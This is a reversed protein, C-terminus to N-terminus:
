KQRRRNEGDGLENNIEIRSMISREPNCILGQLPKPSDRGPSNQGKALETRTYNGRHMCHSLRHQIHKVEMPKWDGPVIAMITTQISLDINAVKSFIFLRNYKM